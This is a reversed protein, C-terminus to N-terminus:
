EMQSVIWGALEPDLLVIVKSATKPDLKKFQRLVEQRDDIGTLIAAIQEPKLNKYIQDSSEVTASQPAESSSDEENTLGASTQGEDSSSQNNQLTEDEGTSQTKESKSSFPVIMNNTDTESTSESGSPEKKEMPATKKPVDFLAVIPKTYNNITKVQTQINVGAFHLLLMVLGITYVAPLLVLVVFKTFFPTQQPKESEAEKVVELKPAAM